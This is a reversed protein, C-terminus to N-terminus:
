VKNISIVTLPDNIDILCCGHRNMCMVVENISSGICSQAYDVDKSSLKINCNELGWMTPYEETDTSKEAARSTCYLRLGQKYRERSDKHHVLQWPPFPEYDCKDPMINFLDVTCGSKIMYTYDIGDLASLPTSRSRAHLCTTCRRYATAEPGANVKLALHDTYGPFVGLGKYLSCVTISPAKPHKACITVYDRSLNPTQLHTMHSNGESYMCAKWGHEHVLKEFLPPLNISASARDYLAM